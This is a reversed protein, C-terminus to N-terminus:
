QNSATNAKEPEPRPYRNAMFHAQAIEGPLDADRLQEMEWEVDAITMGEGNDDRQGYRMVLSEIFEEIPTNCGKCRDLIVKFTRLMEFHISNTDNVFAEAIERLAEFQRKTHAQRLERPTPQREPQIPPVCAPKQEKAKDRLAELTGIATRLIASADQISQEASRRDVAVPQPAPKQKTRPMTYLIREERNLLGQVAEPM